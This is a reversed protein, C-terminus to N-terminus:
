GRLKTWECQAGRIRDDLYHGLTTADVIWPSKQTGARFVPIPLAQKCARKAAEEASLGFLHACRELPIQGTGYEALLLFVTNM